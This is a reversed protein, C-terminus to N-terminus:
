RGPQKQDATPQASSSCGIASVAAPSWQQPCPHLRFHGAQWRGQCRRRSKPAAVGSIAAGVGVGLSAANCGRQEPGHEAADHDSAHGGEHHQRDRAPRLVMEHFHRQGGDNGPRAEQERLMDMGGTHERCEGGTDNHALDARAPRDRNGPALMDLIEPGIGGEEGIGAQEQQDAAVLRVLRDRQHAARQNRADQERQEAARRRHVRQRCQEGAGLQPQGGGVLMRQHPAFQATRHARASASATGALTASRLTITTRVKPTTAKEIKAWPSVMGGSSRRQFRVPASSASCQNLPCIFDNASAANRRSGMECAVSVIVEFAM